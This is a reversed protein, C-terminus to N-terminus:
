FAIKNSRKERHLQAKHQEFLQSRFREVQEDMMKQLMKIHHALGAFPSFFRTSYM